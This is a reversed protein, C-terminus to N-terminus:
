AIQIKQNDPAGLPELINLIMAKAMAIGAMAAERAIANKIHVLSLRSSTLLFRLVLMKLAMM